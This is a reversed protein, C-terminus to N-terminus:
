ADADDQAPEDATAEAKAAKAAEREADKAAKKAERDAKAQAAKAERELKAAERKALREAKATEREIAKDIGTKVTSAFGYESAADMASMTLYGGDVSKMVECGAAGAKILLSKLKADHGPAFTATTTRGETGCTHTVGDADVWSYLSSACPSPTKAKKAPKAEAETVEAEVTATDSM